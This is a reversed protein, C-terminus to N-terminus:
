IPMSRKMSGPFNLRRLGDISTPRNNPRTETPSRPFMSHVMRDM